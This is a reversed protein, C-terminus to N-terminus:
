GGHDDEIASKEWGHYVARIYLSTGNSGPVHEHLVQVMRKADSFPFEIYWSICKKVYSMVNNLHLVRNLVRTEKFKNEKQLEMCAISGFFITIALELGITLRGWSIIKEPAQAAM